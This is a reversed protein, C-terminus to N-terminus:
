VKSKPNVLRFRIFCEGDIDLRDEEVFGAKLIWKIRTRSPPFLITVSDLNLEVFAQHILDNYLQRGYGWYAPALVLALEFDEEDPQIGGWGIFENNVFYACPGFGFKEWIAEKSAIFEQYNKEDFSEASLPMHRKILPDNLLKIILNKDVLKLRKKEIHM